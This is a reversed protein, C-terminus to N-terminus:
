MVFSALMRWRLNLLLLLDLRSRLNWGKLVCGEDGRSVEYFCNTTSVCLNQCRTQTQKVYQLNIKKLKRKGQLSELDATHKNILNQLTLVCAYCMGLNHKPLVLIHRPVVLCM